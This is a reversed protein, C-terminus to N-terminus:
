LEKKEDVDLFLPKRKEKRELSSGEKEKKKAVVPYLRVICCCSTAARLPAVIGRQAADEFHNKGKGDDAALVIVALM